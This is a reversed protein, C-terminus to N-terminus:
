WASTRRASPRSVVWVANAQPHALGLLKMAAKVLMM